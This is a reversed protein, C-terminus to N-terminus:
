EGRYKKIKLKHNMEFGENFAEFFELYDEACDKCYQPSKEENQEKGDAKDSIYYLKEEDGCSNCEGTTQCGVLFAMSLGLLVFAVKRM